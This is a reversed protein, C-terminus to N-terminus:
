AEAKLGHLILETYIEVLSHQSLRGKPSYWACVGTLMAIIGFISVKLDQVRWAGAEHGQRLIGAIKDEYESRMRVIKRRNGESLSRLEYNGIYVERKRAAHFRIHFDIFRRLREVPDTAGSLAEDLEQHLDEMVARMIQFLFQEKNQIYNYLSGAQLGVEAAIQRLTVAGYGREHILRIGAERVAQMTREGDSGVTRVM